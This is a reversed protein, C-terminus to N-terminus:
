TQFKTHNELMREDQTSLTNQLHELKVQKKKDLYRLDDINKQVKQFEGETRRNSMRLDEKMKGM